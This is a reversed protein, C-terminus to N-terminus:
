GGAIIAELDAVLANTEVELDIEEPLNHQVDVQLLLRDIHQRTSEPISDLENLLKLVSIASPDEYHIGLITCYARAAIGAARRACVRAKGENGSLRAAKLNALETSLKEWTLYDFM